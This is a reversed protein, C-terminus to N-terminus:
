ANCGEQTEFEIEAQGEIFGAPVRPRSVAAVVALKRRRPRRVPALEPHLDFWCKEGYGRAKSAPDTLPQRCKPCVVREAV